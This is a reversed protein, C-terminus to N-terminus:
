RYPLAVDCAVDTSDAGYVERPPGAPRHGATRVWARVADYVTLIQPPEFHGPPVAVYAERHAPETRAAIAGTDVREADVPMCVEVPGARDETVPGHFVVFRPGTPGGLADAATLLRATAERIWTLEAARVHRQETLVTQEPVDRRGVQWGGVPAPDRGALSRVLRGALERRRALREEVTAWYRDLLDAADPNGAEVIPAIQVLPMDLRRLVAILRAAYLQSEHYRRYGNGPEVEAPRLLGISDYLRLAKISLGSRDAFEGSTLLEGTM